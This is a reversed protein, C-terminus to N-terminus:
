GDFITIKTIYMCSSHQKSYTYFVRENELLRDFVQFYKHYSGNKKSLLKNTCSNESIIPQKYWDIFSAQFFQKHANIKKDKTVYTREFRSLFVDKKQIKDRLLSSIFRMSEAFHFKSLIQSRNQKWYIYTLVCNIAYM